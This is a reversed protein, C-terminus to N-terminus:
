GRFPFRPAMEVRRATLSKRTHRNRDLKVQKWQVREPMGSRVRQLASWSKTWPRPWRESGLRRISHKFEAFAARLTASIAEADHREALRISMNCAEVARNTGYPYRRRFCSTSLRFRTHSKM